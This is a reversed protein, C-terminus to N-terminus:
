EDRRLLWTIFRNNVFSNVSGAMLGAALIKIAFAMEPTAKPPSKLLLGPLGIVLTIMIVVADEFPSYRNANYIATFIAIAVCTWAFTRSFSAPEVGQNIVAHLALWAAGASTAVMFLIIAIARM